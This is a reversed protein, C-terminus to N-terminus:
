IEIQAYHGFDATQVACHCAKRMKQGFKAVCDREVAQKLASMNGFRAQIAAVQYAKISSIQVADPRTQKDLATTYKGVPVVMAEQLFSNPAPEALLVDAQTVTYGILILYFM